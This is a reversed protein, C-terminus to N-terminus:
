RQPLDFAQQELAADVDAMFSYTEPPVPESRQDSCLDSYPANMMPRKRLPAPVQVLDEDPDVAFCVIEPTRHIMLALHELDEDGLAM